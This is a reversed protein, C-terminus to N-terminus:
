CLFFNYFGGEYSMEAAKFYESDKLIDANYIKDQYFAKQLKIYKGMNFEILRNYTSDNLGQNSINVRLFYAMNADVCTLLKEM